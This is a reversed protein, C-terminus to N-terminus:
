RSGPSRTAAETRSRVGLKELVRSVHVKVTSESIFLNQAIEKNSLGRSLLEHVETERPSLPTETAKARLRQRRRPESLGLKQALALDKAQDLLSILDRRHDEVDAIAKALEPFLRYCTVFSDLNGTATALDFAKVAVAPADSRSERFAVAAETCASLVSAEVSMAEESTRRLLDRANEVDGAVAFALARCASHERRLAKTPFERPPSALLEVADDVRGQALFLLARADDLLPESKDGRISIAAKEAKDLWIGADDFARLGRCITARTLYAQPLAFGLRFRKAEAIQEDSAEHAEEYRAAFALAFVWANLFSSRVMPNTVERTLHSEAIGLNLGTGQRLAVFLHGTALRVYDDDSESGASELRALAGQGDGNGLDLACLLQGWLANRLQAPDESLEEAKRYHDLAEDERSAFHASHGAVSYAMSLFPKDDDLPGHRIAKLALLEAENYRAERFAVSARTLDFEPAQLKHKASYELWRNLTSLRGTSLMEAAGSRLLVAMLDSMGAAEILSYAADWDRNEILFHGIKAQVSHIQADGYEAGRTELFPRLLPHLEFLGQETQTLVGMHAAHDLILHATDSGFICEALERTTV